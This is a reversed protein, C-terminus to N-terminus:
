TPASRGEPAILEGVERARLIKYITQRIDIRSEIGKASQGRIPELVLDCVLVHINGRDDKVDVVFGDLRAGSYLDSPAASSSISGVQKQAPGKGPLIMWLGAVFIMLLLGGVISLANIKNIFIWANIRNIVRHLFGRPPEDTGGTGNEPPNEIRNGAASDDLPIDLIDLRAKQVM